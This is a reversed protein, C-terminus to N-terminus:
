NVSLFNLIRGELEGERVHGERKTYSDGNWESGKTRKLKVGGQSVFSDDIWGCEL